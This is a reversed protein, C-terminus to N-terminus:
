IQIIVGGSWEGVLNGICCPSFHADPVGYGLAPIDFRDPSIWVAPGSCDLVVGRGREESLLGPAAAERGRDFHGFGKIRGVPYGNVLVLGPVVGVPHTQPCNCGFVIKEQLLTFGDGLKMEVPLGPKISGQAEVASPPVAFSPVPVGFVNVYLSPLASRGRSMYVPKGDGTIPRFFEDIELVHM